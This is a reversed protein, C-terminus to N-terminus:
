PRLSASLGPLNLPQLRFAAYLGTVPDRREGPEAALELWQAACGADLTDVALTVTRWGAGPQPSRAIVKGTGACRVRWFM